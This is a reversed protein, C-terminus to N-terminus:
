HVYTGQFDIRYVQLESYICELDLCASIILGVEQLDDARSSFWQEHSFTHFCTKESLIRDGGVCLLMM